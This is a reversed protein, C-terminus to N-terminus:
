EATGAVASSVVTGSYEYGYSSYGIATPHAKLFASRRDLQQDWAAYGAPDVDQRVWHLPTETWGRYESILDELGESLGDELYKGPVEVYDERYDDDGLDVGFVVTARANHGM